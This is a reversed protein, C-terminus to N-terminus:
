AKRSKVAAGQEKEGAEELLTKILENHKVKYELFFGLVAHKVMPLKKVHYFLDDLEEGCKTFDTEELAKAKKMSGEDAILWDLSVGFKTCLTHLVIENPYIQGKEIRSYNARGIGFHVAMEAQKLGLDKRIRQM